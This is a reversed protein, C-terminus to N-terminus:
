HSLASLVFLFCGFCGFSCIAVCVFRGFMAKRDFLSRFKLAEFEDKSPPRFPAAQLDLTTSDAATLFRWHMFVYIHMCWFKVRSIRGVCSRVKVGFSQIWVVGHALSYDHVGGTCLDHVHQECRCSLIVSVVLNDHWALEFDCLLYDVHWMGVHPAYRCTVDRSM